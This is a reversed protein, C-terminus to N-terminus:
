LPTSGTKKTPYSSADMPDTGQAREKANSHGDGDIDSDCADGIGDRDLDAQNANPQKVCNDRSDAVGDGDRDAGPTTHVVTRVDTALVTGKQTWVTKVEHAGAPVTVDLAFSDPGNSSEVDESAAVAGDVYVTVKEDSPVPCGSSGVGPVDPCADADDTVGDGDTDVPTGGGTGEPVLTATLTYTTSPVGLVLYPDIRIDLTGQVGERVLREPHGASAANGQAAGTVYMDLDSADPWSLVLEVTSKEPVALTFTHGASDNQGLTSDTVTFTNGGDRELVIPDLLSGAPTSGGASSAGATAQAAAPAAVDVRGADPARDDALVTWMNTPARYSTLAFVDYPAVVKAAALYSRPIRFTVTNATADWQSWESPLYTEMSHDYTVVDAPNRPDPITTEIERGGISVGYKAVSTLDKPWLQDVKVTAVVDLDTVEVQLNTIDTVPTLSDGDPDDYSTTPSTPAADKPRREVTGSVTVRGDATEAGHAPTSVTLVPDSTAVPDPTWDTREGPVAGLDPQPCDWVSGTSSAYLHDDPHQVQFSNSGDGAVDNPDVHDSETVQGDGNVDLYRSMRTAFGEVNLTSVCKNQGPPDASYAMIDNTPVPGWAGELGDGVHGLTLCHGTEHLVLDFLSFTDTTGPAPDIAGNVSFCVNGGAGGCDEVYTGGGEGHHGDYGPMGEWTESAFPNEIGHCPAGNEDMIGLEDTLYTPDIGIGIGGVPNTALIVIEPDYLPYTSVQDGETLGVIDPTIRFDVGQQLWDLGMQGSLYELGGEWAEAAQRMIRLDREATPSAPVLVAVDIKPSDLANLGVKAHYCQNAPNDRSMDKICGPPLNNDGFYPGVYDDAPGALATTAGSSLGAVTILLTAVLLALRRPM